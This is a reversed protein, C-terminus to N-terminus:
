CLGIADAIARHWLRPGDEVGGNAAEIRMAGPELKPDAQVPWGAPLRDGFRAIDDPHLCLTREDDSRALLTAALTIRNALREQDLALPALAAQCLAAVTELLRQRLAEQQAADLRAAAIELREWRRAGAEAEADLAERTQAEGAAFGNAWALAVPDEPEIPPVPGAGFRRDAKFGSGPPLDALAVRSM